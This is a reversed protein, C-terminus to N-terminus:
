SRSRARRRTPGSGGKASFFPDITRISKFPLFALGRQDNRSGSSAMPAQPRAKGSQHCQRRKRPPGISRLMRVAHFRRYELDGARRRQLPAERASQAVQRGDAVLARAGGSSGGAGGVDLVPHVRGPDPVHVQLREAEGREDQPAGREAGSPAVQRVLHQRVRAAAGGRRRQDVDAGALGRVVVADVKGAADRQHLAVDGEMAAGLVPLGDRPARHTQHVDAVCRLVQDLDAGDRIRFVPETGNGREAHPLAVALVQDSGRPGAADRRLDPDVRDELGRGTSVDDSPECPLARREQDPRMVVGPVHVRRVVAAADGHQQFEGLPQRVLGAPAAGHEDGVVGLLQPQEASVVEEALVHDLGPLM